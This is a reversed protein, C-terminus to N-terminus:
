RRIEKRKSGRVLVLGHVVVFVAHLTSTAFAQGVPLGFSRFVALSSLDISALVVHYAIAAGHWVRDPGVLGAALFGAAIVIVMVIGDFFGIGSPVGHIAAFPGAGGAYGLWFFVAASAGVVLFTLGDAVLAVSSWRSM